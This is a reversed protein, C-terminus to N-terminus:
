RSLNTVEMIEEVSVNKLGKQLWVEDIKPFRNVVSIYDESHAEPARKSAYNVPRTEGIGDGTNPTSYLPHEMSMRSSADRENSQLEADFQSSAEGDIVPLNETQKSASEADFQLQAERRIQTSADAKKPMSNVKHIRQERGRITGAIQEHIEGKMTVLRRGLLEENRTQMGALQDLFMRNDEDKQADLSAIQATMQQGLFAYAQQAQAIFQALQEQLQQNQKTLAEIQPAYVKKIEETVAQVNASQKSPFLWRILIFERKPGRQGRRLQELDRELAVRQSEIDFQVQLIALRKGERERFKEANLRTSTKDLVHDAVMSMVIILSPFLFALWPATDHMWTPLRSAHDLAQYLNAFISSVSCVVIALLYLWVKRDKMRMAELQARMGNVAVLDFVLAVAYGLFPVSSPIIGEYFPGSELVSVIMLVYITAWFFWGSGDEKWAKLTSAWIQRCWATITTFFKFVLWALLGTGLAVPAALLAYPQNINNTIVWTNNALWMGGGALPVSILLWPSMLWTLRNSEGPETSKVPQAPTSVQPQASEQTQEAEATGPGEQSQGADKSATDDSINPKIANEQTKYYDM